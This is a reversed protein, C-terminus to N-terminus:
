KQQSSAVSQPGVVVALAHPAVSVHAPLQGVQEGDAMLTLPRDASLDVERGRLMTVRPHSVHTGRFVRPFARVFEARSVDGVICIELWGSDLQAAPAVRMGGGYSHGKAIAIMMARETRREGDITLELQAATFRPLERAIAVVYRGTGRLYPIREAREAVAADFGTGVV